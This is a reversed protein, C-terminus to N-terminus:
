HHPPKGRRHLMWGIVAPVVATIVAGLIIVVPSGQQVGVVLMLLGLGSTVLASVPMPQFEAFRRALRPSEQTFHHEIDALQREEHDHFTM